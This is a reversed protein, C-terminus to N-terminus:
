THPECHLALSYLNQTYITFYLMTLQPENTKIIFLFQFRITKLFFQQIKTSKLLKLPTITKRHLLSKVAAITLKKM